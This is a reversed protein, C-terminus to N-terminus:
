IYDEMLTESKYKKYTVVKSDFYNDFKGQINLSVTPINLRLEEFYLLAELFNKLTESFNSEDTLDIDSITFEIYKTTYIIDGVINLNLYKKMYDFVKNTGKVSYFLRSIYTIINNLSQGEPVETIRMSLFKKVPDSNLSSYFDSFSEQSEEYYNESYETIMKSLKNIVELNKLHAPIYIKM